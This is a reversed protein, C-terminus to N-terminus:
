LHESVVKVKDPVVQKWTVVVVELQAFAEGAQSARPAARALTSEASSSVAIRERIVASV